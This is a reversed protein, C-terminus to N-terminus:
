SGISWLGAVLAMLVYGAVGGLFSGTWSMWTMRWALAIGEDAERFLPRDIPAQCSPCRTVFAGSGIPTWCAGCCTEFGDLAALDRPATASNDTPLRYAGGDKPLEPVPKKLEALYRGVLRRKLRVAALLSTANAPLFVLAPVLATIMLLWQAGSAMAGVGGFALACFVPVVNLTFGVILAFSMVSRVKWHVPRGTSAELKKWGMRM